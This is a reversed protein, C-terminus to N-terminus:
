AYKVLTETLKALDKDWRGGREIGIKVSQEIACSMMEFYVKDLAARAASLQQAIKFCDGNAEIMNKVAFIQGNVRNLRALLQAKKEPDPVLKENSM